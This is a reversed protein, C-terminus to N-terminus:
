DLGQLDELIDGDIKGPSSPASTVEEDANPQVYRLPRDLEADWLLYNTTFIRSYEDRSGGDGEVIYPVPISFIYVHNGADAALTKMYSTADQVEVEYGYARSIMRLVQNDLMDQYAYLKKLKLIDEMVPKLSESKDEVEDGELDMQMLGEGIHLLYKVSGEQLKNDYEQIMVRMMENEDLFVEEPEWFETGAEFLRAELVAIKDRRRPNYYSLPEYQFVSAFPVEDLDEDFQRYELDRNAAILSLVYYEAKEGREEVETNFLTETTTYDIDKIHPWVEQIAGVVFAEELELNSYVLLNTAEYFDKDTNAILSPIQAMAITASFCLSVVVYFSRIM